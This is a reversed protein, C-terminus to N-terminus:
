EYRNLTKITSVAEDVLRAVSILSPLMVKVSANGQNRGVEPSLRYM